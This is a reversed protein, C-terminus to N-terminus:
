AQGLDINCFDTCFDLIEDNRAASKSKGKALTLGKLVLSDPSEARFM